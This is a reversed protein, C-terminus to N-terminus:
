NSRLKTLIPTFLDAIQFVSAGLFLGVYGGIEAIFSLDDYSYYNVIEQIFENFYMTLKTEDFDISESRKIIKIGMYSCPELCSHNTMKLGNKKYMKYLQFAEKAEDSNECIKEKSIGFPTTCGIDKMSRKELHNHVCKDFKYKKDNNCSKGNFDLMKYINHDINVIIEISSEVNIFQNEAARKVGLVGATNVFVRVNTNFVTSIRFIGNQLIESSPNYTYCRGFNKIDIHNFSNTDNLPIYTGILNHSQVWFKTMLDEPKWIIKHFLSKPNACEEKERESWITNNDFYQTM